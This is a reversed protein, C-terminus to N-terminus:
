QQLRQMFQCVIYVQDIVRCHGALCSRQETEKMKDDTLNVVELHGGATSLGCIIAPFLCLDRVRDHLPGSANCIAM